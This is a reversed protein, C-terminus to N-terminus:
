TEQSYSEEVQNRKKKIDIKVKPDPSEKHESELNKLETQLRLKQKKLFSTVAIVRGRMVAKCADWLLPPCVEGNDNFELYEKIEKAFQETRNNNNLVSPNLKWHTLKRRCTMKLSLYLPCHDSLDM